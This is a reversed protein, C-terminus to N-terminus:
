RCGFRSFRPFFPRANIRVLVIRALLDATAAAIAGLVSRRTRPNGTSQSTDIASTNTPPTSHVSDAQTM